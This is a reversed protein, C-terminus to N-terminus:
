DDAYKEDWSMIMDNLMLGLRALSEDMVQSIWIDVIPKITEILNYKQGCWYDGSPDTYVTTGIMEANSLASEMALVDHVNENQAYCYVIAEALTANYPDVKNAEIRYWSAEGSEDMVDVYYIPNDQTSEAAKFMGFQLGNAPKECYILVSALSQGEYFGDIRVTDKPVKQMASPHEMKYEERAEPAFLGVSNLTKVNNDLIDPKYSAFSTATETGQQTGYSNRETPSASEKQQSSAQPRANCFSDIVYSSVQGVM